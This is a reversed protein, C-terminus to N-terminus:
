LVYLIHPSHYLSGFALDDIGDLALFIHWPREVFPICRKAFWNILQHFYGLAKLNFSHLTSLSASLALCIEVSLLILSRQSSAQESFYKRIALSLALFLIPLLFNFQLLLVLLSRTSKPLHM